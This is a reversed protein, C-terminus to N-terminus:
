KRTYVTNGVKKPMLIPFKAKKEYTLPEKYFFPLITGTIGQFVKILICNFYLKNLKFVILNIVPFLHTCGSLAVKAKFAPSNRSFQPLIAPSNRSFQPLFAPSVRSFRPLFALPAFHLKM